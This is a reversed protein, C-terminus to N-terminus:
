LALLVSYTSQDRLYRVAGRNTEEQSRRDFAGLIYSKESRETQKAGAALNYNRSKGPKVLLTLLADVLTSKGAGNQGVLLTTHGDITMSHVVGDFTGWNFVELRHLRYGQLATESDAGDHAFSESSSAGRGNLERTKRSVDTM